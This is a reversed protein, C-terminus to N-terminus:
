AFIVTALVAVVALGLAAYVFVVEPPQTRPEPAERPSAPVPNVEAGCHKCRKAELLILEACEPCRRYGAGKALAPMFGVALLAIPGFLFGLVFWGAGARGKSSAVVATFAGCILWFVILSIWVWTM